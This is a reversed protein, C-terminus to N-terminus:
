FKIMFLYCSKNRCYHVENDKIKVEVRPKILNRLVGIEEEQWTPPNVKGVRGLTTSSASKRCVPCLVGPNYAKRLNEPVVLIPMDLIPSDYVVM